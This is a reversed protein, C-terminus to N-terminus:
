NRYEAREHRWRVFALHRSLGPRHRREWERRYGEDGYEEPPDERCLALFLERV